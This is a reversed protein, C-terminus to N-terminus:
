AGPQRPSSSKQQCCHLPPPHKELPAATQRVKTEVPLQPVLCARIPRRSPAALAPLGKVSHRRDRGHFVRLRRRAGLPVYGARGVHGGQGPVNALGRPTRAQGLGAWSHMQEAREGEAAGQRQVRSRVELSHHFPPPSRRPLQTAVAVAGVEQQPTLWAGRSTRLPQRRELLLAEPLLCRPLMPHGALRRLCACRQESTALKASPPRARRAHCERRAGDAELAAAASQQGRKGSSVQEALRSRSTRLRRPHPRRRRLCGCCGCCCRAHWALQRRLGEEAVGSGPTASHAASEDPRSRHFHCRLRQLHAPQRPRAAATSRGARQPRARPQSRQVCPLRHASLAHDHHQGHGFRASVPSLSALAQLGAALRRFRFRKPRCALRREPQVSPWRVNRRSCNPPLSPARHMLSLIWPPPPKLPPPVDSAFCSGVVPVPQVCVSPCIRCHDAAVARFLPLESRSHHGRCQDSQRQLGRLLRPAPRQRQQRWRCCRCPRSSLATRRRGPLSALQWPLLGWAMRPRPRSPRPGPLLRLRSPRLLPLLRPQRCVSRPTGQGGHRQLSTANRTLLHFHPAPEEGGRDSVLAFLLRWCSTSM